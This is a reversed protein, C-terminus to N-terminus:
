KVGVGSVPQSPLNSNIQKVSHKTPQPQFSLTSQQQTQVPPLPPLLQYLQYSQDLQPVQGLQYLQFPSYLGYASYIGLAENDQAFVPSSFFLVALLVLVKKMAGGKLRTSFLWNLSAYQLLRPLLFPSKLYTGVYEAWQRVTRGPFSPALPLRLKRVLEVIDECLNEASDFRM